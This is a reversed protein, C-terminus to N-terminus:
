IKSDIDRFYHRISEPYIKHEEKLIKESLTEVTDSAQVSVTSQSIILGTDIGSDVFHVTCGSIKVGYDFAQKQADLGPFSPLLSPHINIIRNKYEKLLVKGLIRMYGALCILDIKYFKLTDLISIEFEKKSRYKKREFIFEKIGYKQAKLVGAANENDSIVVEINYNSNNKLSDKYISDFNSGRGSLFVAIKGKKKQMRNKVASPPVRVGVPISGCIGSVQADVLEAM